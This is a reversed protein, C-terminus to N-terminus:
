DRRGFLVAPVVGWTEAYVDAGEAWWSVIEDWPMELVQPLPTAFIASVRGVVGRWDALSVSVRRGGVSPAFFGLM